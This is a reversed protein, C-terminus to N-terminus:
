EDAATREVPKLFNDLFTKAVFRQPELGVDFGVFLTVVIRDGFELGLIEDM